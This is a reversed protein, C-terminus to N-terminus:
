KSAEIQFARQFPEVLDKHVPDPLNMTQYGVLTLHVNGQGDVMKVDYSGDPNTVVAAFYTADTGNEPLSAVKLERFAHPLGLRSQLALGSLSATQFCLEVFRPSAVLPLESPEHNAPLNKSFSAIVREDSRWASDIVQYAPGHFFVRYVQPGDIKLDGNPGPIRKEKGIAPQSAVLRVRGTFHTTVEPQSQGHLTRSGLLMCEAIIDEGQKRFYAHVTVKRPQGRYFKFPSLFQVDEIAGIFREPYLLKAAEAMAEIGMVGPLVPTQNIQHDFLFPQKTPDLETEVILGGYLGMGLVAGTMVGRNRLATDLPGGSGTDLGGQPDFENLMIGLSQGIVIEGRTGATLERRIIPIGAEPPLMDIGAQKMVAPISGRAAMGIGSWATWDIAIGCTNPRLSRLNSMCKCLLDNASSYDTQGLNGFRGAISSFVVAAGLPLSGINSILNFWGDSKVDFVLDFETPKKDPIPHSIELGAAHLLVDIRGHRDAVEKVIRGVAANDMLDVSRYNVVGGAKRVSEIAALAAASRELGSIEKEVMVPTARESRLKLREFIDRKLGEKDTTLRALDGNGPDPEPILDLLYFTGGSAAALDSTIASVISGAAGTVVFVTDKNLTLGQLVNEAPQVSLGITWRQGDKYGIEVAGPDRLTEELLLDALASTKRSPEFDVVKVTAESKERKYAKTFGTVAGGLPDAAGAEDYGHLGGLRTASVLFTGPAGLQEDIAQMTAFLLKARIRTAERWQAYSMGPIDTQSDLASLWYVGQIPGEAKWGEIYKTLFKADPAGDIILAQVGLKELRGVLAKGVGGQDPMLIVRSGPRLVVGTPKCLSLAPRMQPVPVRRPIANAADMNGAIVPVATEAQSAAAANTEAQVASATSKKFEPKRDYVFQITHALTPFDRLKLNDERPIDYAARIAAFMEAQKVTDIGLDAELDLDLDLMDTPYGTKEAIIKLVTEKVGDSEEGTAQAAASAPQQAALQAAAVPAAPVAASADVAAKLDPRRDFVFQIVHALTPFDRLKLNDERQINYTERIAAFMEAQKVTDIGLDAELDLEPDLMDMPYGTKEAIIQMVKVQVENAISPQATQAPAAALVPQPVAAAAAAAAAAKLDPKRDYVFQVVHALTPFDRLKLNDERPIDYAERIAAFMEAQKVTDIGLDAELDLELDLMDMPYGTKEAIIQMVKVQVEDRPPAAPAPAPQVIAAPAAAVPKLDPKRDYVFKVVHALTPFDRLKLNDERPIDYTERIAAFVEAQKVTDIGLDAELDLELDLMDMPYGTKEAIIQMVKAQVEDRPSAAPAPASKAASLPASQLTAAVIPQPAAAAAPLSAMAPQAIAGSAGNEIRVTPGQDKARLTRQVIELEPSDYGTHRKLWNNWAAPDQIRYRYGLEAPMPREGNPTPIWRLLTMCIQSGFGAGLRLAYRIPYRGGKSLNLYGLEPDVEKFNPVPPVIGTELMKVSMVDEIGVAMPHGTAGKTNAVVIQDTAEKFVHRLAFVEASASGGRAPTYTEHSVFVTEPAIQFRNLGWDAEVNSVLREMVHRIHSVDLRTGHYASNAIVSGLVQCIPRVGRERAAEASELVIASAGMGVILGHRRRDFPTAEEEVVEGTAASGSALFGSGFWGMLNDSTIDDASVIIVRRCRGTRIWDSAIGVAQTGSACAGNTATNPGRAGIYEAFQSHGMSLVRFLFRRDFHYTNEEIERRLAEIRRNLEAAIGDGTGASKALSYLSDLEQLRERRARDEHFGSIIQEYSDYGPFASTFLIGTDDRIEDPLQWRDPLKTGKTTTKYRMVLPIGADRLADIGAGIALKTVRDLAPMRDEPFGFDRIIDFDKARAALKIVDGTSQISEFRGEGSETKVLRTINKDAMEQRLNMPIPNIFVDGRLMREVNSDSFVGDVGPLGLSAGTICIDVPAQARQGGSYIQFGKDMFDAFLKGLEVYRDSDSAAPRVPAEVPREMRYAPMPVPAPMIAAQAAPTAAPLSERIEIVPEKKSEGFGLGASYLGCLALNLSAADGIRPHNTFLPLVGEREGLVDEVFGYLIRKPGMEVFVRAGAAYLSKLGKIFQVPSSVQRGLLSIMDPVVGPGMPYFEGTVNSMIPIDPPRLDMTGLIRALADGAPAVIKTHFAHSVQLARAVYGADRVAAMAKEVGRTSGGIVAEKTSNINAIVVYDDVTSLVQEIKDIPGFVAAMMGNDDFACRTMENGRASVAKLANEFSLAGCAVLAGYEGLSHGMVMDPAIGYAGLVRALATETALVAPQTIATQKLGEEAEAVAAEDSEDLYICSTLTKGLLPEMTRDAEEFVKTVIPENERLLRIMNVYQSGQGTFLFAVKPAPGKGLFIGKARLAKWRGAQNQEFAKLAKGSKDALEAANGYDIVLRMEARLDSEMPVAPAPAKGAEAEKHVERLRKLLGAESDSGIVLAGRLPAKLSAAPSSSGFGSAPVSVTTKSESAIRGPIYEELVFHFNTGGFGFASVAARRVGGPKVDWPRLETNVYFPSKAFDFNPNPKQFNLSPPLEKEKLAFTAKLIGAAGAAGKLHGINSKVSGLAVSGPPLGLDQFTEYLADLEAADGVPTSTGHGEIMDGPSLMVGANQWARRVCIKQGAPNPATIGKGKGDSSGGFGRIVAYIKDGDREADVLRKMLFTAAGEGMVFGDSGEAYPRSGTGSLAGIKCFKVFTSPSMNTDIGGTLVADYDNDNLGEIAASIAAMASACAADAVYNPGKFDYLAAIRGAIINALEGPMTDETIPPTKSRVGELLQEMIAQRVDPPLSAYSSSKILEEAVEPFLIRAASYLHSDGAMANGLIVATREQNLSRNPYGYDSLAERATIVAWKQTLDMAQGVRPPIPMKWKIPDWEWDRVWGGIKSYTKDPAKPDPDFYLEPNWRERVVETISYRGERINQWFKPATSADPMLAGVGVIAVAKEVASVRM